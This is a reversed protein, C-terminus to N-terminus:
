VPCVEWACTLHPQQTVEDLSQIEGMEIAAHVGNKASCWVLMESTKIDTYTSDSMFCILTLPLINGTCQSELVWEGELKRREAPDLFIVDYKNINPDFEM